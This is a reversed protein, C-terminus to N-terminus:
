TTPAAPRRGSRRAAARAPPFLTWAGGRVDDFGAVGLVGVGGLAGDTALGTMGLVVAFRKRRFLDRMERFVRQANTGTAAARHTAVGMEGLDHLLHVTITPWNAVAPGCKPPSLEEQIVVVVQHPGPPIDAPVAVTLTHDPNVITTLTLTRM